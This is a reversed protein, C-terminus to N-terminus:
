RALLVLVNRLDTPVAVASTRLRDSAIADVAVGDRLLRAELYVEGSEGDAGPAAFGVPEGAAVRSGVVLGPAVRELNAYFMLVVRSKAENPVRHRLVVTVPAAGPGLRDRVIEAVAVVDAAGEAGEIRLARVAEGRQVQAFVGESPADLSSRTAIEAPKGAGPTPLDFAAYDAPRDPRRPIRDFATPSESRSVEAVPAAKEITPVCSTGDPIEDLGCLVPLPPATPDAPAPLKRPPVAASLAAVVAALAAGFVLPHVPQARVKESM